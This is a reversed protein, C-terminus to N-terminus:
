LVLHAVRVNFFYKEQKNKAVQHTQLYRIFVKTAAPLASGDPPNLLRPCLFGLPQPVRPASSGLASRVKAPGAQPSQLTRPGSVPAAGEAGPEAGPSPELAPLLRQELSTRLYLHAM